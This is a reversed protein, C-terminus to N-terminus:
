PMLIYDSTIAWLLFLFLSIHHHFNCFRLVIIYDNKCAMMWQIESPNVPSFIKMMRNYFLNINSRFTMLNGHSFPQRIYCTSSVKSPLRNIVKLNTSIDIFSFHLQFANKLFNSSLQTILFSSRRWKWNLERINLVVARVYSLRKDRSLGLSVLLIIQQSVHWETM